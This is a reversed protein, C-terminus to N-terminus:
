AIVWDPAVASAEILAPGYAERIQEVSLFLTNSDSTYSAALPTFTEDPRPGIVIYRDGSSLFAMAVEDSSVMAEHLKERGRRGIIQVEAEPAVARFVDRVFVSPLLPVYIPGPRLDRMDEIRDVVFQTAQGISMWFRTMEPDTLTVRGSERQQLLVPILSGRSGTVNGYRCSAFITNHAGAYAHAASFLGEALAKSDGYLTHPAAAKDSSVGMVRGVGADIAAEVVNVAGGVNTKICELPDRECVEIRKLAAAHIVVDAGEMARRLRERDRVDGILFRMRPDTFRRASAAQAVEGRSFLRIAKLPLALLRATVATGFTGTGGTILVTKDEWFTLPLHELRLVPRRLLV